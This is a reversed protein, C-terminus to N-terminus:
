LEAWRYRGPFVLEVRGQDSKPRFTVDIVIRQRRWGSRLEIIVKKPEGTNVQFTQGLTAHVDTRHVAVRAVVLRRKARAVAVVGTEHLLLHPESNNPILGWVRLELNKADRAFTVTAYGERMRCDPEGVEDHWCGTLDVLRNVAAEWRRLWSDPNYLDQVVLGLLFGVSAAIGLSWPLKEWWDQIEIWRDLVNTVASAAPIIAGGFYTPRPTRM